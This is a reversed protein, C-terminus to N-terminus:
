GGMRVTLVEIARRLEALERVAADRESAVRMAAANVSEAGTAGLAHRASEFETRLGDYATEAIEARLQWRALTAACEADTARLGDLETRLTAVNDEAAQAAARSRKTGAPRVRRIRIYPEDYIGEAHAEVEADERTAFPRAERITSRWGNRGLYRWDVGCEDRENTAKTDVIIWRNVQAGVAAGPPRRPLTPPQAAIAAITSASPAHTRAQRSPNPRYVIM